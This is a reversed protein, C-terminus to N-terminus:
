RSRARRYYGLVLEVTGAHASLDDVLLPLARHAAVRRPDEQVAYRHQLSQLAAQLRTRVGALRASEDAPM